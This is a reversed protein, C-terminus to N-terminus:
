LDPIMGKFTALMIQEKESLALQNIKADIDRSGQVLLQKEEELSRIKNEIREIEALGHAKETALQKGSEKNAFLKKLVLMLAEQNLEPVDPMVAPSDAVANKPLQPIKVTPSKKARPGKPQAKRVNAAKEISRKLRIPELVGTERYQEVKERSIVWIDEGEKEGFAKIRKGIFQMTRLPTFNLEKQIIKGLSTKSVKFETESRETDAEQEITDLLLLLLDKTMGFTDESEAPEQKIPTAAQIKEKVDKTAPVTTSVTPADVKKPAPKWKSKELKAIADAVQKASGKGKYLICAMKGGKGTRVLLPIGKTAIESPTAPRMKVLQDGSKSGKAFSTLNFKGEEDGLTSNLLTLMPRLMSSLEARGNPQRFSTSFTLM